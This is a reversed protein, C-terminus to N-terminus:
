GKLTLRSREQIMEAVISVAIENPTQAGITIGIPCHVRDLDARTCGENLLSRYITDRKKLSGIMGIYAADTKLAQALVTRDHLHGRTFIVIFADEDVKIDAFAENFSPPVKVSHADPFRAADAFAARDDLVTVSFGALACLHATAKAVHGAGFLFADPQKVSPQVILQGAEFPIVGMSMRSLADGEIKDLAERPLRGSVVRGRNVVAHFVSEVTPGAGRVATVFFATERQQQLELWRNFVISTEEDPIIHDLFVQASGGCLMDMTDVNEASLDFPMFTSKGHGNLIAVAKEVVAAELLGGGITGRIRGDGTVLMRTGATRPTSGEHSIITAIVFATEQALLDCATNSLSDSM